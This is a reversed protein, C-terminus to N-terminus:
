GGQRLADDYVRERMSFPGTVQEAIDFAAGSEADALSAQDRLATARTFLATALRAGDTQFGQVTQVKQVLAEDTAITELALATARRWDGEDAIFSAIEEDSFVGDVQVRDPITRRVRGIDTLPDYSWTM